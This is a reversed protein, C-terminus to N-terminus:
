SACEADLDTLRAEMLRKINTLFGPNVQQLEPIINHRIRNRTFRLDDNTDDTVYPVGKRHCWDVLEQKETLLLPRVINQSKSPQRYHIYRPQGHSCGWIYTEAVDNLHHATAITAPQQHLWQYRENRWFEEWSDRKPKETVLKETHLIIKHNRCYDLVFRFAKESTETGHHYFYADPRHKGYRMFSLLAMSDVGGSVAVGDIDRLSGVLRIM